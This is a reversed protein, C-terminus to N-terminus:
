KFVFLFNSFFGDARKLTSVFCLSDHLSYCDNNSTCIVSSTTM